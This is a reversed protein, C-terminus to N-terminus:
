AQAPDRLDRIPTHGPRAVSRATDAEVTVLVPRVFNLAARLTRFRRIRTRRGSSFAIWIDRGAAAYVVHSPPEGQRAVVIIRHQLVPDDGARSSVYASAIDGVTAYWEAFLAREDPTLIRAPLHRIVERMEISM